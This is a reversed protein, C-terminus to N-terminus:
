AAPVKMPLIQRQVTVTAPTMGCVEGDILLPQPPDAELTIRSSRLMTVAPHNVHKGEFVQTLQWLMAVKGLERVLCIDLLGDDPRAEPAIKMGGGTTATNAMSVFMARTKHVEGNDLTVTLDFPQFERATLIAGWVYAPAGALYKIGENVTQATRADFGTGSLVLFHRLGGTGAGEISGVDFRHTDGQAITRCARDLDGFLGVARAFDNGTGFPILGLTAESGLIGNVVEHLTGDGGVAVVLSAGATAAERALKEADGSAQTYRWVPDILGYDRLKQTIARIQKGAEGRGATPNIIFVPGSTDHHLRTSM